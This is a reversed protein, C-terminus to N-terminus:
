IIRLAQIRIIVREETPSSREFKKAGTYKNALKDIHADAGEKTQEIVRGQITVHDYMNNQDAIAISVHKGKTGHRQKSRGVVTNVLIVDRDHDVWVPTVMPSGDPLPISLFAFNKGDILKTAKENLKTPM